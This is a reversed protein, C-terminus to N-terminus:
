KEKIRGGLVVEAGARALGVAMTGCLEGTGGIVVATKGSLDFLSKIYATTPM